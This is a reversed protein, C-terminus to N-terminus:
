KSGDCIASGAISKYQSCSCKEWKNSRVILTVINYHSIGSRESKEQPSTFYLHGLAGEFEWEALKSILRASGNRFTVTNIRMSLEQYNLGSNNNFMFQGFMGDLVESSLREYLDIAKRQAMQDETIYKGCVPYVLHDLRHDAAASAVAQAYFRGLDYYFYTDVANITDNGIEEPSEHEYHHLHSKMPQSVSVQINNCEPCLLKGKEKSIFYWNKYLGFM